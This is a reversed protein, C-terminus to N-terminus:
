RSKVCFKHSVRKVDDAKVFVRNETYHGLAHGCVMQKTHKHLRENIVVM